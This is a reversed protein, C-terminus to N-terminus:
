ATSDSASIDCSNSITGNKDKDMQRLMKRISADVMNETNKTFPQAAAPGVQVALSVALIVISHRVRM